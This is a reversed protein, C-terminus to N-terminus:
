RNKPSISLALSVRAKAFAYTAGSSDLDGDQDDWLAAHYYRSDILPHWAILEVPSIFKQQLGMYRAESRERKLNM